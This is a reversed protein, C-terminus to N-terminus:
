LNYRFTSPLSISISFPGAQSFSRLSNLVWFLRRSSGESAYWSAIQKCTATLASHGEKFYRDALVAVVEVFFSPYPLPSLVVLSKQFFGRKISNDRKQLFFAFGFLRGDPQGGGEGGNPNLAETTSSSSPILESSNLSTTSPRHNQNSSALSPSLPSTSENNIKFSWTTQGETFLTSDPFSSFARRLLPLQDPLTPLSGEEMTHMSSAFRVSMNEGVGMHWRKDPVTSELVPGVDLDFNVVCIAEIWRRLKRREDQGVKVDMKAYNSVGLDLSPNARARRPKPSSNSRSLTRQVRLPSTTLNPPSTSPSLIDSQSPSSPIRSSSPRRHDHLPLPPSSPLNRSTSSSSSFSSAFPDTLHPRSTTGSPSPRNPGLSSFSPQPQPQSSSPSLSLENLSSDGIDSM